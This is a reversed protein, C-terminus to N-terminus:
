YVRNEKKVEPHVDRPNCGIGNCGITAHARGRVERVVSDGMSNKIDITEGNSLAIKSNFVVQDIYIEHPIDLKSSNNITDTKISGRHDGLAGEINADRHTKDFNLKKVPIQATAVADAEDSTVEVAGEIVEEEMEANMMKPFNFSRSTSRNYWRAGVHQSQASNVKAAKIANELDASYYDKDVALASAAILTASILILHKKLSHRM